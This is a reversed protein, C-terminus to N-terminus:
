LFGRQPLIKKLVVLFPNKASLSYYLLFADCPYQKLPMKGERHSCMRKKYRVPFGSFSKRYGLLLFPAECSSFFLNLFVIRCENSLQKM